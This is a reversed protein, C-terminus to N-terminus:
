EGLLEKMTPETEKIKQIKETATQEDEGYVKMRYEVKSILGSSVEREYRQQEANEDKFRSYDTEININKTEIGALYCVSKVLDYLVDKLVIEDSNKTRWADSDESIVQTATKIRSGDFSYFSEGFGLNAGLWSLENNISGIHEQYRLNFDIEKVPQGEMGNIAVYTRDNRDFYVVTRINGDEDVQPSGKLATKDVLIRKKGDVFETNFSDYKTDIAKFRDISNALISIGMPSTIDFNNAMNPRYVQFHPVEVNQYEVPNLVDPYYEEFPIEKGLENRDKSKYLENYKLYTGDKYELYTIHTYYVQKNKETETYQDLICLGDINYNNYSYPVINRADGVYEIIIDGKENKFESFVVTGMAYSMELMRPMMISFNNDKSDLINWLQETKKDNDLTIKVKENWVLRARDECVKKPMNMTLRECQQTTGDALKINYNHFNYVYGSYWELWSQIFDYYDTNIINIGKKALQKKLDKYINM